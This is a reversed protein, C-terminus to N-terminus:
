VTKIKRSAIFCLVAIGILWVPSFAIDGTKPVDDYENGDSASPTAPAAPATTTSPAAAPTKSYTGAESKLHGADIRLANAQFNYFEFHTYDKGAAKLYDVTGVVAITAGLNVNKESALYLNKVNSNFNCICFDYVYANEIDGTISSMSDNIAYFDKISKASIVACTSNVITLNSLHVNVSLTISSNGDIILIDGDKINAKLAEFDSYSDGNIWSNGLQYRWVNDEPIYKVYYAVASEAHVTLAPQFLPSLFVVFATLFAIFKCYKKM